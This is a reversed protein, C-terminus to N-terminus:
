QATAEIWSRLPAVTVYSFGDDGGGCNTRMRAFVGTIKGNADIAPGGSDGHCPSSGGTGAFWSPYTTGVVAAAVRKTRYVGEGAYSEGYGVMRFADDSEPMTDALPMPKVGVVPKSLHVVAIDINGVLGLANGTNPNYGGHWNWHDAEYWVGDYWIGITASTFHVCHAATLLASPTILTATCWQNNNIVLESVAPFRSTARANTLGDESVAPTEDAPGGCATGLVVAVLGM